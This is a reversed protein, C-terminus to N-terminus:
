NNPSAKGWPPNNLLERLDELELHSNSAVFAGNYLCEYKLAHRNLRKVYEVNDIAGYLGYEGGLQSEPLFLLAGVPSIPMIINSEDNRQVCYFCNRPVVFGIETRNALVTVQMKDLEFQENAVSDAINMGIYSLADHLERESYDCSNKFVSKMSLCAQNSRVMAAKMYLKAIDMEDQSITITSCKGQCFQLIKANLRGIPTEVLKNWYKETDQSYYGKEAGLRKAPKRKINKGVIDLYWVQRECHSEDRFNKIISYPLQIHSHKVM